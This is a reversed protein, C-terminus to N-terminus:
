LLINRLKNASQIPNKENFVFGQWGYRIGADVYEKKNDIFFIDKPAVHAKKRAIEYVEKGPKALGIDCSKIIVDYSIHPIKGANYLLEFHGRYINSLLGIKYKKKLDKLLKHMPKVISLTKLATNWKDFADKESVHLNNKLRKLFGFPTLVGTYMDKRCMEYTKRFIKEEISLANMLLEINLDAVLTEGIDFYVFQISHNMRGM